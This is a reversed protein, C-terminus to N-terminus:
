VSKNFLFEMEESVLMGRSSSPVNATAADNLPYTPASLLTVPATAPCLSLFRLNRDETSGGRPQKQSARQPEPLVAECVCGCSNNRLFLPLSNLM